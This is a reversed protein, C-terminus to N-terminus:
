YVSKESSVSKKGNKVSLGTNDARDTYLLLNTLLYHSLWVLSKQIPRPFVVIAAV